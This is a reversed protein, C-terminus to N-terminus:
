PRTSSDPFLALQGSASGGITKRWFELGLANRSFLVLVYMLAGRTNRVSVLHQSSGPLYGFRTLAQNYLDVLSVVRQHPSANKVARWQGTGFFATLKPADAYWMRRMYGAHFTFLLDVPRDHVLREISDLRVQWGTPDVFALTLANRPILTAVDAIVDNCDGTIVDWPRGPQVANLRQQLAGTAMPDMDVYIYRGFPASLAQLASGEIFGVGGKGFSFGPGAFLEVYDIEAWRKRMATAFMSAYRNVYYVKREVWPGVVRAPLGDPGGVYKSGTV